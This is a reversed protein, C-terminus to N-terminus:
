AEEKKGGFAKALIYTGVLAVGGWIGAKKLSAEKPLQSKVANYAAEFLNGAKSEGAKVAAEANTKAETMLVQKASARSILGDGAKATTALELDAKMRAVTAEKETLQKVLKSHDKEVKEAHKEFFKNSQKKLTEMRIETKKADEVAEKAAEAKKIVKADTKAAEKAENVQKEIEENSLKSGKLEERKAEGAAKAEKEIVKNYKKDGAKEIEEEAEKLAKGGKGKIKDDLKDLQDESLGSKELLKDFKNGLKEAKKELSEVYKEEKSTVKIGDKKMEEIEKRAKTAEEKADLAEQFKEKLSNARDLKKQSKNVETAFNPKSKAKEETQEAIEKEAKKITEQLDKLTSVKHNKYLYRKYNLGKAEEGEKVKGFIENLTKETKKELKEPSAAKEEKTVKTEKAEKAVPEKYDKAKKIADQQEKNLEGAYKIEKGEKVNSTFTDLNMPSKGFAYVSGGVAGGVLLSPLFANGSRQREEGRFNPNVGNIQGVSM